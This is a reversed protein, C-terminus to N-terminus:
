IEMKRTAREISLCFAEKTLGDSQYAGLEVKTKTVNEFQALFKLHCNAPFVLLVFFYSLPLFVSLVVSAIM